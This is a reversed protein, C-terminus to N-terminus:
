QMFVPPCSGVAGNKNAMSYMETFDSLLASKIYNRAHALKCAQPHGIKIYNDMFIHCPIKTIKLISLVHGDLNFIKLM